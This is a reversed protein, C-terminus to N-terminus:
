PAQFGSLSDETLAKRNQDVFVDTAANINQPDIEIGFDRLKYWVIM